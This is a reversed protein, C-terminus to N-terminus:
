LFFSDSSRSSFDGLGSGSHEACIVQREANNNDTDPKYSKRQGELLPLFSFLFCRRVDPLCLKYRM